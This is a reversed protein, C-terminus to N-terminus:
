PAMEDDDNTTRKEGASCLFAQLKEMMAAFYLPSFVIANYRPLKAIDEPLSERDPFRFGDKVLPVINRDLQIAHALELRLWDDPENCADLSGPTLIVVFDPASEIAKLLREDFYRSGLDDLDLFPRLGCTILGTALLRAADSAADRRYCIFVDYPGSHGDKTTAAKHSNIEAKRTATGIASAVAVAVAFLSLGDAMIPWRPLLSGLMLIGGTLGVAPLLGLWLDARRWATVTIAAILGLAMQTFLYSVYTFMAGTVDSRAVAFAFVTRSSVFGCWVVALAVLCGAALYRPKIGIALFVFSSPIIVSLWPLSVLSIWRPHNNSKLDGGLDGLVTDPAFRLISIVIGDLSDRWVIGALCVVVAIIWAIPRHIGSHLARISERM